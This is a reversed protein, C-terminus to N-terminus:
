KDFKYTKVSNNNTVVILLNFDNMPIVEVSKVQEHIPDLGLNSVANITQNSLNWLYGKLSSYSGHYTNFKFSNGTVMVSEENNLKLNKFDNIPGLQLSSEFPRFELFSNNDNILYGSALTAAEYKEAKKITGSKMIEIISKGAYSEHSTYIKNIINMQVALEDKSNLPYYTGGRNYAIMTEYVNNKDFDSYYLNLPGDFYLNFKSNLGLNGVLIDQDGDNDIDASSISQWLGSMGSGLRYCNM